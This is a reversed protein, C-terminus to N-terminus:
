TEEKNEYYTKGEKISYYKDEAIIFHDILDIGIIEGAEMIRKTTSRDSNSPTVDGSPHNHAIIIANSNSLISAKFVERPHIVSQSLTGINIVEYYTINGKIDMGIACLVERDKHSIMRQFFKGADHPSQIPQNFPFQKKRKTLKVEVLQYMNKANMKITKMSTSICAMRQAISSNNKGLLKFMGM